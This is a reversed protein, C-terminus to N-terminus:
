ETTDGGQMMFGKIVRHFINGKYYLDSGKEGTCLARFNEVTKPVKTKFLEFIVRGIAQLEDTEKGSGIQIDFYM